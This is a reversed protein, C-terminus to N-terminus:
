TLAYVGYRFKASHVCESDWLRALRFTRFCLALNTYRTLSATSVLFHIIAYMRVCSSVIPSYRCSLFYKTAQSHLFNLKTKNENGCVIIPYPVNFEHIIRHPPWFHTFHTFIPTSFQKVKERRIGVLGRLQLM